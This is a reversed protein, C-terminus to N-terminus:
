QAHKTTLFLMSADSIPQGNAICASNTQGGGVNQAAPRGSRRLLSEFVGFAEVHRDHPFDDGVAWRVGDLQDGILLRVWKTPSPQSPGIEARRGPPPRASRLSELEDRRGLPV